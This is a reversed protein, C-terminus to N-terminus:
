IDSLKSWCSTDQMTIYVVAAVALDSRTLLCDARYVKKKVSVGEVGKMCRLFAAAAIRISSKKVSLILMRCYSHSLLLFVTRNQVTSNERHPELRTACLVSNKPIICM